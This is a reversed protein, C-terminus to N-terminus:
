PKKRGFMLPLMKRITRINEAGYKKGEECLMTLEKDIESIYARRAPEQETPEFFANVSVHLIIAIQQLTAKNPSRKGTEYQSIRTQAHPEQFGLALGLDRQQM